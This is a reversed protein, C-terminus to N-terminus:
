LAHTNEQTPNECLQFRHHADTILATLTLTQLRATMLAEAAGLTDDLASNVAQEILCSPHESRNGLAFLAPSGLARYVDLLTTVSPDCALVWGGGHGKESTVLGADRLSALTRRLVVPNANFAAALRESPVAETAGMLHALLHLMNSLRRDLNM